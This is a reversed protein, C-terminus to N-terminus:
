FEFAHFFDDAASCAFIAVGRTSSDISEAFERIKELYDKLYEYEPTGEDVVGLHENLQKKLFIDYDKKGTHNPETRLYVSLFPVSSSTQANLLKTLSNFNRM